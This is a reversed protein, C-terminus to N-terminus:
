RTRVSWLLLTAVGAVALPLIPGSAEAVSFAATGAIAGIPLAIVSLVRVGQGANQGEALEQMTTTLTGTVYTTTIGSVDSLKKAAVTQLALASSSLAIVALHLMLTASDPSVIWAISAALQAVLSPVLLRAVVRGSTGTASDSPGATVRFAAYLVGIFFVLAVSAGALTTAFEPRSFMGVLVLNGTMNATFIGGLALFAFADAAGASFALLVLALHARALHRARNAGQAATGSTTSM